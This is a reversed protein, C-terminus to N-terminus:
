AWTVVLAVEVLQMVQRLHNGLPDWPVLKIAFCIPKFAEVFFM